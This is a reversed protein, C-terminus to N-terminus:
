ESLISGTIENFDPISDLFVAKGNYQNIKAIYHEIGNTVIMFNVNLVSNYVAAQNFAAQTIKVDPAKFELILVPYGAKNYFVADFRKNRGSIKLSREISLLGAPYNLYDVLYVLFNQRVWEEPTLVLQKNRFRDFVMLRSGSKNISLRTEPLNLEPLNTM